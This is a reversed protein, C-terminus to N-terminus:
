NVTVAVEQSFDSEAGATNVATMAIYVKGKPLSDIDYRTVGASNVAVIRESPKAIKLRDRNGSRRTKPQSAIFVSRM